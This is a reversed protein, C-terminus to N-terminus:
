KRQDVICQLREVATNIFRNKQVFVTFSTLLIFTSILLPIASIEDMNFGVEIIYWVSLIYLLIMLVYLITVCFMRFISKLVLLSKRHQYNERNYVQFFALYPRFEKLVNIKASM